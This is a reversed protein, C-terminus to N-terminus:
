ERAVTSRTSTTRSTTLVTILTTACVEKLFDAVLARGGAPLEGEAETDSYKFHGIIDERDRNLLVAGLFCFFGESIYLQTSRSSSSRAFTLKQRTDTRLLYAAGSSTM